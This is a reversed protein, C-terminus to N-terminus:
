KVAYVPEGEIFLEIYGDTSVKIALGYNSLKKAAASRGGGSSGSDNQIIAGVACVRGKLDLICAGDMAILEARLKRDIEIFGKQDVLADVVKRKLLRKKKEEKKVPKIGLEKHLDDLVQNLEDLTYHNILNDCPNLIPLLEIPKGIVSETKPINTLHKIDKIVSIIGGTHSFSVDLTSAYVQELLEKPVNGKKYKAFVVNAFVDYSMNVWKLNRKIFQVSQNKALVIDGNNLLFVGVADGEVYQQIVGAFRYPLFHSLEYGSVAGGDTISLYRSFNCEKDLEIVSHICDSLTAAYDDSLFDLWTGYDDSFRSVLNPNYIFGFTVKKGEYTKVAWQELSRLLQHFRENDSGACWNAIGKQIALEVNTSYIDDSAYNLKTQNSFMNYRSVHFFSGIISKGVALTEDPLRYPIEIWAVDRGFASFVVRDGEQRIEDSGTVPLANIPKLNNNYSIGIIPLLYNKLFSRYESVGKM